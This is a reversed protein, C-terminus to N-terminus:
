ACVEESLVPKPLAPQWYHKLALRRCRETFQAGSEGVGLAVIDEIEDPYDFLVRSAIKRRGAEDPNKFRVSLDLRGPRSSIEQGRDTLVSGLAPDLLEPKNTTVVLLVGDISSVGDITNLLCDFTLRSGAVLNKRGSFVTDFDEFLAVCPAYSSLKEWHEMFEANDVGALDFHFVPMGLKQSVARAWSTKGTGSDGYALVGMKWPIEHARYWEKSHAWREVEATAELVENDYALSLFPDPRGPLPANFEAENYGIIRCLQLPTVTVFMSSGDPKDASSDGARPEGGTGLRLSVGRLRWVFYRDLESDDSVDVNMDLAALGLAEPDFLGRLGRVILHGDGVWDEQTLLLPKWGDWFLVARDPPLTEALVPVNMFRKDRYIRRTVSSFVRDPSPAQKYHKLVYGVVCGAQNFPRDSYRATVVFLGLVRHGVARVQEWLSAVVGLAAAGAWIWLQDM